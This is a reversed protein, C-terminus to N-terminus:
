RTRAQDAVVCTGEPPDAPGAETQGAGGHPDAGAEAPHGATGPLGASSVLPEFPGRTKGPSPPAAAKAATGPLDYWYPHDHEDPQAATTTSDDPQGETDRYLYVGDSQGEIGAPGPAGSCLPPGSYQAPVSYEAPM